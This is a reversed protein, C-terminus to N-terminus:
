AADRAAAEAEAAKRAADRAALRDLLAMTKEHDAQREAERRAAAKARSAAYAARRKEYARWATELDALSADVVSVSEDGQRHWAGHAHWLRLSESPLILTLRVRQNGAIHVPMTAPNADLRRWAHGCRACEATAYRELRAVSLLNLTVRVAAWENGCRYCRGHVLAPDTAGPATGRALSSAVARMSARRDLTDAHKRRPM